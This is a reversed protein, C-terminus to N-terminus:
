QVPLFYIAVARGFWDSRASDLGVLLRGAGGRATFLPAVGAGGGGGRDALREV